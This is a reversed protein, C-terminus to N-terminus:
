LSFCSISLPELEIEYAVGDVVANGVEKKDSFNSVMFYISGDEHKVAIGRKNISTYSVRQANPRMCKAALEMIYYDPNYVVGGTEEDINVLSNQKWGWTSEAKKDLIMNWYTFTDCGATYYDLIHMYLVIAQEWTNEGKFCSSETHMFKLTPHKYAIDHMPQMISYQSGIGSIKDLIDENECVFECASAGQITRFTGAWIETNINNEAFEKYIYEIVTGMQKASMICSPYKTDVDPENQIAYREIDFGQKKYEQVFLSVYKALANYYKEEDVVNGGGCASRNTKLWWPPSWPSAHIGMDPCYSKCMEMYPMVYKKDRELSFDKMEFDDETDNYSYADLGFDSSGVPLRFFNLCNEFLAKAVDERSKEGLSLLAKGGIESFSGGIGRISQFAMKSNVFINVGRTPQNPQDGIDGRLVASDSFNVESPITVIGVRNLKKSM